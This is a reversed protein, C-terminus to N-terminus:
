KGTNSRSTSQMVSGKVECNRRMVLVILHTKSKTELCDSGIGIPKHHGEMDANRVNPESKGQPKQLGSRGVRAIGRSANGQPLRSLAFRGSGEDNWLDSEAEYSV